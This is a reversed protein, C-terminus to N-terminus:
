AANEGRPLTIVVTTGVGHESDVRITGGLGDVINRAIALGLGTGTRRTTFYPDFIHPIHEPEIGQGHDQVTVSAAGDRDRRTMVAVPAGSVASRPERVSDRANAIVNILVTRLRDADGEIAEVDPSLDLTVPPDPDAAVLAAVADRCVANLSMPAIEVQVPRVFDLVDNVVRDLRLVEGEIDAAAEAVAADAHSRQTLVRLSGRVIMLPNRIEHAIVTSLRGLASLRDREAAERQFRAIAHTLADFTGALVRADEDDWASRAPLAVRRTLDGTRAMEGMASTLSALPRTITRAVAYSVVSALMTTLVAILLLALRVSRLTSSSAATSQLIMAQPARDGSPHEGPLPALAHARWAYADGNVVVPNGTGAALAEQLPTAADEGLTSALVRGRLVFALETGASSRLQRARRDDLLTGVSLSGLQEAPDFGLVVPLIVVQLLGRPHGLM